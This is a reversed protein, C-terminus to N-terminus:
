AEKLEDMKESLTTIKASLAQIDAKTPINLRALIEEIRTDWGEEAKRAEKKRKEVLDHILKRGDKEAIEGREILRNILEEIEDQALAVAGVSALLVKRLSELLPHREAEEIVEQVKETM